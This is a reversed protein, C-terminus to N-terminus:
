DSNPHVDFPAPLQYAPPHSVAKFHELASVYVERANRSRVLM